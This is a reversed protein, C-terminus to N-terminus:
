IVFSVVYLSNFINARLLMNRIFYLDIVPILQSIFLNGPGMETLNPYLANTIQPWFGERVWYEIEKGM